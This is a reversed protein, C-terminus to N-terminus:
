SLEDNPLLRGCRSLLLRYKTPFGSNREKPGVIDTHARNDPKPTHRVEQEPVERVMQVSFEAVRYETHPKRGRSATDLPTSYRSWDTSMGEGSDKIAGPPIEDGNPRFNIHVRYYLYDEDPIEESHFGDM